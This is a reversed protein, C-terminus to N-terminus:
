GVLPWPNMEPNAMTLRIAKAIKEPTLVVSASMQPSFLSHGWYADTGERPLGLTALAADRLETWSLEPPDCDDHQEGKEPHETVLDWCGILAAKEQAPILDKFLVVASGAICGTTGCVGTEAFTKEASAGTTMSFTWGPAGNEYFRALRELPSAEPDMWPADERIDLFEITDEEDTM